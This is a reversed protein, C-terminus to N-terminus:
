ILAAPILLFLMCNIITTNNYKNNDIHRLDLIIVFIQIKIDLKTTNKKSPSPTIM